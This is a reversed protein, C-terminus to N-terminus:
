AKQRAMATAIPIASEVITHDSGKDLVGTEASSFVARVLEALILSRADEDDVSRAFLSFTRLANAKQEYVARLHTNTRYIRSSFAVGFSLVGLVFARALVNRVLVSWDDTAPMHSILWWGVGVVAAAMAVVAILAWRAAKRHGDAQNEYHTALEGTGAESTLDRVKVLLQEHEAAADRAKALLAEAEASRAAWDSAGGKVHQRAERRWFVLAEEIRREAQRLDEYGNVNQKSHEAMINAAVALEGVQTHARQLVQDSFDSPELSIAVFRDRAYAYRSLLEPHGTASIEDRTEQPFSEIPPCNTLDLLGM